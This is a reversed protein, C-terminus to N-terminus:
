LFDLQSPISYALLCAASVKSQCEVLQQIFSAGFNFKHLTRILFDFNLTDLAKEFDIAVLIGSLEKEKTYEVDDIIITRIADFLSRGKVFVNQNSHIIQPLAKELRKALTKSAIKEDVNILFIPWWNKIMRKDKGEKEILTIIAQKQSNSLEGFEIAHNLSHVLLRGFLPCFALYFQITVGDKGPTKNKPFTGFVSLCESYGLKGKCIKGLDDTLAPFGRSVDLFTPTASDLLCSSGDYLNAYFSELEDM